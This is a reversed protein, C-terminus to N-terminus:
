SAPGPTLITKLHRDFFRLVGARNLHDTDFFYRDDNDALSWDRLVLNHRDLVKALAADFAAEDPLRAHIRAPIPPKIVLFRMGRSTVSGILRDLDALYRERAPALDVGPPYLYTLRADDIQPVPRYTRDFRAEAESVDSAFRDPNNIKSFGTVYDLVVTLPVKQELLVRVLALDFPARRFLRTDRLRDENWDSHSFAFSDVVYVVTSARHAVLFYDLLLRNPIVGGGVVALNLINAGTMQELRATMDGYDLAAAHSAGLIVYDYVPLPATRVLYFRNQTAYRRILRESAVYLGVYVCLGVATFRAARRVFPRVGVAGRGPDLDISRTSTTLSERV